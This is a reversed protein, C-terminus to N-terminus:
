TSSPGRTGWSVDHFNMFSYIPIIIQYTPIMVLYCIMGGIYKFITFKGCAQCCNVLTAYLFSLIMMGSM